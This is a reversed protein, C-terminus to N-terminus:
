VIVCQVSPQTDLRITSSLIQEILIHALVLIYTTNAHPIYYFIPNMQYLLTLFTVGM